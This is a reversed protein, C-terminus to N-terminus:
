KNNDANKESDIRREETVLPFNDCIKQMLDERHSNKKNNQKKKNRQFIDFSVLITTLKLM